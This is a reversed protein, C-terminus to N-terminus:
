SVKVDVAQPRLSEKLPVSIRLVGNELKATVKKAEVESNQPLRFARQFQGYRRGMSLYQDEKIKDSRKVEGSVILHDGEIRVKIEDRNIGPLETEYVLNGNDEYVDTGQLPFMVHRRTRNLLDLDNFVENIWNGIGDRGTGEVLPTNNRVTLM